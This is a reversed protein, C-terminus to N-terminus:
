AAVPLGFTVSTPSARMDTTRPFVAELGISRGRLIPCWNLSETGIRGARCGTGGGGREGAGTTDGVVYGRVARRHIVCVVRSPGARVRRIPSGSLGVLFRGGHGRDERLLPHREVGGGVQHLGEAGLVVVRLLTAANQRSRGRMETRTERKKKKKSIIYHPSSRGTKRPENRSWEVLCIYCLM